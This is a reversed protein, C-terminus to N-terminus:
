LVIKRMLHWIFVWQPSELLMISIKVHSEPACVCNLLNFFDEVNCKICVMIVLLLFFGCRLAAANKMFEQRNREFYKWSLDRKKQWSLRFFDRQLEYEEPCKSEWNEWSRKTLFQVNNRVTKSEEVNHVFYLKGLSYSNLFLGGSNCDSPPM